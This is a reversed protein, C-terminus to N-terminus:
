FNLISKGYVAYVYGSILSGAGAVTFLVFDNVAQVETAEKPKYCGTLMVTGASFSFNWAIGLLVMGFIYNWTESGLALVVSSGAFIFGGTLAVLFTGYREILKGSIFGPSFMAFFHLEMTLSCMHFGYGNDGMDLTVNSMLMVMITHALTAITCSLIFQPQRAIQWASRVEEEEEQVYSVPMEQDGQREGGEKNSNLPNSTWTKVDESPPAPFNVFTIVLQNFAAFIAIVAYSGMYQEGIFNMSYTASTPGLFAAIIGGSLVYTVARSKLHTPTVEVASFRYFQGLGQALGISLCGLYLWFLQNTALSLVGLISGIVQFLCGLSFGWFRGYKRFLWGSPVSSIAAGILFAGITFASLSKSAGLEQASLPGVSTLLTSTSLTLAWALALLVINWYPSESWTTHFCWQGCNHKPSESM